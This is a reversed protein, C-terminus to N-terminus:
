TGSEERVESGVAGDQAIVPGKLDSTIIEEVVVSM